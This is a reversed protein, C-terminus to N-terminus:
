FNFLIPFQSGMSICFSYMFTLHTSSLFIYTATLCKRAFYKSIVFSVIIVKYHLLKASMGQDFQFEDTISCISTM